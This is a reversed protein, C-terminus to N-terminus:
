DRLTRRLEAAAKETQGSWVLVFAYKRRLQADDPRAAVLTEYEKLSEPYKKMWSLLEALRYRADLDDSKSKLHDRLLPEAKDYQKDAVYLDVLLLPDRRAVEVEPLSKLASVAGATDGKWHLVRAIELRAEMLDPRDKLVRRYETLSEDYRKAYSLLRALELRARWDPIERGLDELPEPTPAVQPPRSVPPAPPPAAAPKAPPSTAAEPAALWFTLLLSAILVAFTKPSLNM